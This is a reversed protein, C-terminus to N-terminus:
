QKRKAKKRRNIRRWYMDIATTGEFSSIPEWLNDKHGYGEWKVLYEINHEDGRHDLITEVYYSLTKKEQIEKIESDTEYVIVIHKDPCRHAQRM